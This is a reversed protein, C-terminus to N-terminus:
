KIALGSFITVFAVVHFLKVHFITPLL